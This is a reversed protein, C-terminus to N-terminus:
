GQPFLIQLKQATTLNSFSGAAGPNNVINADIGPLNLSTPTAPTDETIPLLPNEFFPFSPETLSVQGIQAQLQSIAPLATILPNTVGIRLANEAFAQQVENSLEIPRFINSRITNVDIDSLRETASSFALPSINLVQAADLDKGFEKRVGFM